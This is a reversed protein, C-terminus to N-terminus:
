IKENYRLKRKKNKRLMNYIYSFIVIIGAIYIIYKDYWPEKYEGWVGLEKEKAEIESKKLIETYKYDNYLYAVKGYGKAIISNQLLENDVFVWALVRGYKDEKDSNSDYELEIVKANTVKDCTFKSAEKGFPEVPKSPHVTEPTDIALFRVYKVEDKISVRITDGDVCKYLTVKEREDKVLDLAKVQPNFIFLSVM